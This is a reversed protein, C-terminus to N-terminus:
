QFLWARHTHAVALIYLFSLVAGVFGAFRVSPSKGRLAVVGLLIYVVLACVKATLWPRVFPYQQSWVVLTLASILLLTDIVHPLVRLWAAKLPRGTTFVLMGRLLFFSGSLVALGM